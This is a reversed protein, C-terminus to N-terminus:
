GLSIRVTAFSRGFRYNNVGINASNAAFPHYIILGDKKDLVLAAPGWLKSEAPEHRPTSVAQGTGVCVGM